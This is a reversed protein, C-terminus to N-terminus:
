GDEADAAQRENGEPIKGHVVLDTYIRLVRSYEMLAASEHSLASAYAYSNNPGNVSPSDKVSEVQARAADLDLKTKDWRERWHRELERQDRTEHQMQGYERLLDM